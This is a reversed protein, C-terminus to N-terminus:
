SKIQELSTSINQASSMIENAYEPLLEEQHRFGPYQVIIAAVAEGQILIPAAVGYIQDDYEGLNLAWGKDQIKTIESKIAQISNLSNNTLKPTQAQRLYAQLKKEPLFALIAKGAATVHPIFLDKQRNVIRIAKQSPYEVIPTLHHRSMTSLIVNEDYLEHLRKMETEALAKLEETINPERNRSIENLKGSLYYLGDRGDKIVYGGEILTNLFISVNSSPQDLHRSIEALKLGKLSEALLELIKLGKQLSGNTRM